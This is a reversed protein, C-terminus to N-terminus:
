EIHTVYFAVHQSRCDGLRSRVRGNLSQACDSAADKVPTHQLSPTPLYPLREHVHPLAQFGQQPMSLQLISSHYRYKMLEWIM